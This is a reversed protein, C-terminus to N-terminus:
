ALAAGFGEGIWARAAADVADLPAREFALGTAHFFSIENLGIMGLIARLYPRFFDPQHATEVFMRSGSTVAVLVPRDKLLGVKGAPTAQFTVDRRVVWDIWCKLAAPVGYNHVPTAILVLDARVLEAIFEDSAAFAGDFRCRAEDAPLLVSEAYAASIPPPPTEGIPRRTVVLDDGHRARLAALLHQGLRASTRDARPSCELFLVEFPKM